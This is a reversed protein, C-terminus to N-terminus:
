GSLWRVVTVPPLLTVLVAFFILLMVLIIIAKSSPNSCKFRFGLFSVEINEEAKEPSLPTKPKGM